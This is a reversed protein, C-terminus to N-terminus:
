SMANYIQFGSGTKTRTGFKGPATNLYNYLDGSSTVGLLDAKGDANLDGPTVLKTYTNWGGGISLRAGFPTAANGTGPYVYLDGGSTRAVVDARGDGTYDGAGLIKNFAGWGGGVKIRSAFGTSQGNGKYLYLNGSRDRALLDGKGDGTLDGPGALANYVGWGSGIYTGDIYLGNDFLQAIDSEGDPDLSALHTFDAGQWGSTPGFQTRTSLLGNTRAGYLFMTGSADRALVVEKTAAVPSNSAGGFQPVFHWYGADGSQTRPALTGDGKGSYYWFTGKTDRALMEGAGDGNDDGVPIIQNYAGWGSGVKVRGAFPGSKDGSGAYFWLTGTTDRAYLDAWGDGNNDGYGVIQDYANWGPGLKVRASFPATRNGTAYYLYLNGSNDRALLDARNDDNVDGPSVLKNYIQWGYGRWAYTAATSTADAYMTLAGQESLMLVEPGGGTADQNGIPVIDKPPQAATGNFLGGTGTTTATYVDGTWARYILDSVGDGDFDSLPDAVRPGEAAAAGARAAGASPRTLTPPTFDAAPREVAPLPTPEGASAPAALLMGASLVLATCAALRARTTHM